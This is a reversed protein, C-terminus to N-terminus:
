VLSLEPAARKPLLSHFRNPSLPAPDVSPEEGAVLEAVLRGTIPALTIGMM